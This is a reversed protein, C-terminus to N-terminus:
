RLRRNGLRRSKFSIMVEAVISAARKAACKEVAAPGAGTISTEALVVEEPESLLHPRYRRISRLHHQARELGGGSLLEEVKDDEVGVLVTANSQKLFGGSSHLWTARHEHKLLVDILGRADENHVVAVILKM